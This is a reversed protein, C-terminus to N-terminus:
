FANNKGKITVRPLWLHYRFFMTTRGFSIKVEGSKFVPFAILDGVHFCNPFGHM